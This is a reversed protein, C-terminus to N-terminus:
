KVMSIFGLPLGPGFYFAQKWLHFKTALFQFVDICDVFTKDQIMDLMTAPTIPPHIFHILSRQVATFVGASVHADCQLYRQIVM